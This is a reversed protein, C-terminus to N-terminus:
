STRTGITLCRHRMTTTAPRRPRTRAHAGYDSSFSRTANLVSGPYIYNHYYFGYPTASYIGWALARPDTGKDYSINAAFAVNNRSGGPYGWPSEASSSNLLNAFAYQTLYPNNSNNAIYYAYDNIMNLAAVGCWNDHYEPFDDYAYQNM